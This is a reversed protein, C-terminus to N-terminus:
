ERIVQFTKWKGQKFRWWFIIGRVSWDLCMALAIGMVGMNMWIAFIVSLILRVGITTFLSIGMTFKVDGTARLGIGLPGAYCLAIGNFINHLLVLWLTLRKTEESVAYFSLVFPTVAFVLANWAVGIILTIKILKRFYYEAQDTDGAGMCQGIVTIFVPSLASSTLAAMSWISQAIGNAAIQYTGFLAVVSSLAVKVLQFIGSEIGNPVAISLITKQFSM